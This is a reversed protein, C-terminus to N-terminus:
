EEIDDLIEESFEEGCHPCRATEGRAAEVLGAALISAPLAFLGIGIVAVFAGVVQGLPTVPHVDGYGVTTLTIVGWWLAAPISSFAEPQATREVFYMISSSLLLLVTGVLGTIVFEERKILIARKMLQLSASFRALKLLRLFRVLRLARLMRTDGLALYFPLIAILDILMYFSFAYRLRGWLWHNYDPHETAAWFRGMYEGTFIVVSFVEFGYFAQGYAEYIPDVTELMVAVTNAIILIVILWDLCYGTPGGDGVKFLVHARCRADRLRKRPTYSM